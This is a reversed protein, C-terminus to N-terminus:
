TTRNRLKAKFDEVSSTYHTLRISTLGLLFLIHGCVVTSPCCLVFLLQFTFSLWILPSFIYGSRAVACAYGLFIRECRTMSMIVGQGNTTGELLLMVPILKRCISLLQNAVKVRETEQIDDKEAAEKMMRAVERMSKISNDGGKAVGKMLNMANKRREQVKLRNLFIEGM